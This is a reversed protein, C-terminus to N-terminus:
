FAYSLGVLYNRVPSPYFLQTTGAGNTVAWESYKRNFLNNIGVFAKLDKWFFSLKGDVTYYWDLKEVQNAFDSILYSSGVFNAGGDLQLGKWVHIDAGVSGKHRPV